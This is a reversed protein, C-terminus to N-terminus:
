AERAAPSEQVEVEFQRLKIQLERIYVQGAHALVSAQEGTLHAHAAVAGVASERSPFVRPAGDERGVRGNVTVVYFGM